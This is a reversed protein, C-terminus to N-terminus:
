ILAFAFPTENLFAESAVAQITYSVVTGTKSFERVSIDTGQCKPCRAMPSFRDHKCASCHFGTVKGDRLKDKQEKLSMVPRVAEFEAGPIKTTTTVKQEM